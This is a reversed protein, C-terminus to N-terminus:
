VRGLEKRLSAIEAEFSKKVAQMESKILFNLESRTITLAPEDQVLDNETFVLDDDQESKEDEIVAQRNIMDQQWNLVKGTEALLLEQAQLDDVAGRAIKEVQDFVSLLIGHAENGVTHRNREMCRTVASMLQLFIRGILQNDWNQDLNQIESQVGQVAAQDFGSTGMASISDRLGALIDSEEEFGVFSSAFADTDSLSEDALAEDAVIEDAVPEDATIEEAAFEDAVIEDAVSEDATIEEAAFEDAVIEDAVQEDATIEEAAFEDAVIEDTFIEDAAEDAVKDDSAADSPSGEESLDEDVIKEMVLEDSVLSESDDNDFLSLAEEEDDLLLSESDDAALNDNDVAPAPPTDEAAEEPEDEEALEFFAEEEADFVDDTDATELELNEEDEDGFLGSLASEVDDADDSSEAELSAVDDEDDGLAPALEGSDDFALPEEDSDDDDESKVDVGQLAAEKAGASPGPESDDAFGLAGALEQDILDNDDEPALSLEDDEDDFDLAAVEQDEEPAFPSPEDDEDDFDLAAVEQEEEPAFPSPEDDEDDFDLAAVEQDDEPAFPSPENDEDDFDLAAVEQEEEPAFPSPEDDEDDFDLAAVEQDDESVFALPGDDAEQDEEPEEAIEDDDALAPALEGDSGFALPEEDSDDDDESEVDVGQLADKAPIQGADDEGFFGDLKDFVESVEEPEASDEVARPAAVAEADDSLAPAIEGDDGFALPIEDSDDDDESEVDVGQLARAAEGAEIENEADPEDEDTFLTALDDEDEDVEVDVGQLAKEAPPAPAAEVQEEDAGFFGDLRAFVEGAEESKEWDDQVEEPEDDGALAPALEGDDTFPLPAEDSDDDAETEVDVGQLATEQDPLVTDKEAEGAATEPGADAKKEVPKAKEPEPKTEKVQSVDATKEEVTKEKASLAIIKKFENFKAVEPLLIAKEEEYTLSESVIRDLNDCFSNLLKFADPHAGSKRKKIYAGLVGIGQLFILKPKSNKFYKELVKVEADLDDLEKDTIEWEMSLIVAKLKMVPAATDVDAADEVPLAEVNKEQVVKEEKSSGSKPSASSSGWVQKRFKDFKRVDAKLTNIKEDEPVSDSSVNKELTHFFSQMLKIANYNAGSKEKLIYKGLKELAQIYVLNVKDDSYSEKLSQLENIFDTLSEDTIEWDLSLVISKLKAISSEEDNYFEFLDIDDTLFDDDEGIDM